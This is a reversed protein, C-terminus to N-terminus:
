ERVEPAQEKRRAKTIHHREIKIPRTALWSKVEEVTWARVKPSLLIGSPFGQDAILRCVDSWNRVVGMDVLDPVRLYVPLPLKPAQRIYRKRPKKTQHNTTMLTEHLYNSVM